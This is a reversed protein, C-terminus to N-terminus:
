TQPVGDVAEQDLDLFRVNAADELTYDPDERHGAILQLALVFQPNLVGTGTFAAFIQPYDWGTIESITAYEGLSLSDQDVTFPDAM